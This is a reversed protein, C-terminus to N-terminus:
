PLVPFEGFVKLSRFEPDELISYDIKLSKLTRLSTVQLKPDLQPVDAMPDSQSNVYIGFAFGLVVILLSIMNSSRTSNM